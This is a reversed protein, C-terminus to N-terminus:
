GTSTSICSRSPDPRGAELRESLYAVLARRNHLATLDDHDVLYQLREEAAIRAQFQAFLAAVAELTIIAEPKWKTRGFKVVGIAGITLEGSVLPVVVVSPPASRRSETTWQRYAGELQKPAIVVPKKRQQIVALPDPDPVDSRPPWQAVLVSARLGHDNHRLFSADANFHEVLQALVQESVQAATSATAEMLREAVAVVLNRPV